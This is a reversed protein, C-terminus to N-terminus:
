KYYHKFTPHKLFKSFGNVYITTKWEKYTNYHLREYKASKGLDRFRSDRQKIIHLPYGTFMESPEIEYKKTVEIIKKKKIDQKFMKTLLTIAKLEEPKRNSETLKETLQVTSYYQRTIEGGYKLKLYFYIIMQGVICNQTVPEKWGTFYINKKIKKDTPIM